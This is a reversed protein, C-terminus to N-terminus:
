NRSILLKPALTDAEQLTMGWFGNWPKFVSLESVDYNWLKNYFINADKAADLSCGNECEGGNTVVRVRVRALDNENTFPYGLMNWQTDDSATALAIEYCGNTSACKTSHIVSTATSESPLNLTVAAGTIQIIWYGVGQKLISNPDPNVYSNSQPDYSYLIWDNGYGEGLEDSFLNM